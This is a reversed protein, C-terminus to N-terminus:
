FCASVFGTSMLVAASFADVEVGVGVVAVAVTVAIGGV